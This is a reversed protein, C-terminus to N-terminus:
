SKRRLQVEQQIKADQRLDSPSPFMCGSATADRVVDSRASGSGTASVSGTKKSSKIKKMDATKKVPKKELCDLRNGLSQLQANQSVTDSNLDSQESM